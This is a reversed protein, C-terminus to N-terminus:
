YHSISGSSKTRKEMWNFLYFGLLIAAIDLILLLFIEQYLGMINQKLLMISRVAVLAYTLPLLRGIVQAWFPLSGLPYRVPSFVYFVYELTHAVDHAQKFQLSVGALMLSIGYLGLILLFIILVTPLIIGITIEIGFLFVGVALQIAAYMTSNVSESLAKGILIFAKNCPSSLLYDLTGRYAERRISEGVGYLSTLVYGNLIAGIVIFPIYDPTGAFKEFESSQLSGVFAQGQFIFPIFWLFPFITWFVFIVPYAMLFKFNKVVESWVIQLNAKFSYMELSQTTM